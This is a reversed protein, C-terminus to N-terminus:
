KKTNMKAIARDSRVRRKGREKEQAGTARKEGQRKRMRERDVPSKVGKEALVKARKKAMRRAVRDPNAAKAQKRADKPLHALKAGLAPDGKPAPRTPAALHPAPARVSPAPKAFKPVVKASGPVTKCRQVRLKRKAFKLQDQELALIEDVSERDTFQVYAFGKGLQTDKDRIIRVRKVWTRPRKAHKEPREGDGEEDSNDEGGSMGDGGPPGREASVLGEFFVRLDEEKSAFDLNGVFVTAKPDSMGAATADGADEHRGVRDVRVTREMFISGDADAAAAKAAEYPDMTPVPPPVNAARTTTPPPHAFVVYANVADVKEHLEQKIFAIRKKEKPDLYSKAPDEDEDGKTARWSAARERDHERGDKAPPKVAPKSKGKAEAPDGLTPLQSTPNQFAVSRFRVSEIKATPIFSLIHRKLQKQLPRSKVVEVPVNGVFITRADRRESTEEPPVYKTKARDSSKRKSGGSLSEHVLRSPDGEEDSDTADSDAGGSTTEASGELKAAKHKEPRTSSEAEDAEDESAPPPVKISSKKKKVVKRTEALNSGISPAKLLCLQLHTKFASLLFM